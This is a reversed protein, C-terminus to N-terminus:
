ATTIEPDLLVDTLDVQVDKSATAAAALRVNELVSEDELEDESAYSEDGSEEELAFVQDFNIFDNVFDDKDLKKVLEREHSLLDSSNILAQLVYEATEPIHPYGVTLNHIRRKIEVSYNNSSPKSAIHNVKVILLNFETNYNFYISLHAIGSNLAPLLNLFDRVEDTNMAVQNYKVQMLAVLPDVYFGKINNHLNENPSFVAEVGGFGALLQTFDDLFEKLYVLNHINENKTRKSLVSLLFQQYNAHVNKYGYPDIGRPTGTEEGPNGLIILEAVISGSNHQLPLEIQHPPIQDKKRHVKKDQKLTYKEPDKHEYSPNLLVESIEAEYNFPKHQYKQFFEDGLLAEDEMFDETAAQEKFQKLGYLMTENALPRRLNKKNREIIRCKACTKYQMVESPEDELRRRKCRRCRRLDDM